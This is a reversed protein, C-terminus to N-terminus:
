RVKDLVPDHRSLELAPGVLSSAGICRSTMLFTTSTSDLRPRVPIQCFGFDAKPLCRPVIVASVQYPTQM